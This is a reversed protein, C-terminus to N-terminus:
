KNKSVCKNNLEEGWMRSLAAQWLLPGLLPETMVEGPSCRTWPSALHKWLVQCNRRKYYLSVKRNVFCERLLIRLGKWVNIVINAFIGIYCTCVSKSWKSFNSEKWIPLINVRTLTWFIPSFILLFARWVEQEYDSLKNELLCGVIEMKYRKLYSIKYM